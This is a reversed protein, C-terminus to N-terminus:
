FLAVHTPKSGLPKGKSYGAAIAETTFSIPLTSRSQTAASLLLTWDQALRTPYDRGRDMGFGLAQGDWIRIRTWGLNWHRDM